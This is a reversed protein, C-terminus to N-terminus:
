ICGFALRDTVRGIAEFITRAEEDDATPGHKSVSQEVLRHQGQINVNDHLSAPKLGTIM